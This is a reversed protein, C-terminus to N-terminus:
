NVAEFRTKVKFKHVTGKFIQIINFYQDSFFHIINM